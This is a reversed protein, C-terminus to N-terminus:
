FLELVYRARKIEREREKEMNIARQRRDEEAQKSLKKYQDVETKEVIQM